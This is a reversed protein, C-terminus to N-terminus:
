RLGVRNNLGNHCLRSRVEVIQPLGHVGGNRPRHCYGAGCSGSRERLDLQLRLLVQNGYLGSQNTQNIGGGRAETARQRLEIRLVRYQAVIRLLLSSL